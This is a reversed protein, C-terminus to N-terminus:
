VLLDLHDSVVEKMGSNCNSFYMLMQISHLLITAQKMQPLVIVRFGREGVCAHACALCVAM